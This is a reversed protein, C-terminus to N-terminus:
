LEPQKLTGSSLRSAAGGDLVFLLKGDRPKVRAAPLSADRDEVVRKVAASKEEGMVLFVIAAANNILPLTLTIRDHKKGGVQVVTSLKETEHLATTEPFLSATHGDEGMGLLILDFRPFTHPPLGFFTKLHSDYKEAASAADPANVPVQHINRPPIPVGSLLTESIMRYNSDPHSLPVYREDALFIHTKEWLAAEKDESLTRYFDRPTHGGSLAASFFGKKKIALFALDKWTKVLFGSIESTDPLVAVDLGALSKRLINDLQTGGRM